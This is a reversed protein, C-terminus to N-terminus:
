ESVKISFDKSVLSLNILLASSGKASVHDWKTGNMLWVFQHGTRWLYIKMTSCFINEFRCTDCFNYINWSFHEERTLMASIPTEVSESRERLFKRYTLWLRCILVYSVLIYVVDWLGFDHAWRSFYLYLACICSPGTFKRCCRARHKRDCSGFKKNRLYNHRLISHKWSCAFVRAIKWRGRIKRVFYYFERLLSALKQGHM